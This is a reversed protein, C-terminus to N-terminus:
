CNGLLHVLASTYRHNIRSAGVCIGGYGVGHHVLGCDQTNTRLRGVFPGSGDNKHANVLSLYTMQAKHDLHQLTVTLLQEMDELMEEMVTAKLGHPCIIM